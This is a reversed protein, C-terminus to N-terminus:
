MFLHTHQSMYSMDIYTNMTEKGSSLIRVTLGAIVIQISSLAVHAMMVDSTSHQLYPIRPIGRLLEDREWRERKSGETGREGERGRERGGGERRERKEGGGGGGGGREGEGEEPRLYVSGGWRHWNNYTHVSNQRPLPYTYLPLRHKAGPSHCPAHQVPCECLDTCTTCYCTIQGECM